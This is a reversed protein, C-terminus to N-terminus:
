VGFTMGGDGQQISAGGSVRISAGNGVHIGTGPTTSSIGGGIHISTGEQSKYNIGTNSHIDTNVINISGNQALFNIIKEAKIDAGEVSIESALYEKLQDFTANPNEGAFGRLSDYIVSSAVNIGLQILLQEFTMDM